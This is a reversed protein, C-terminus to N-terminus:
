PKCWPQNATGGVDSRIVRWHKWPLATSVSDLTLEGNVTQGQACAAEVQAEIRARGDATTPGSLEVKQVSLETGMIRTLCIESCGASLDFFANHDWCDQARVPDGSSIAALYAEVVGKPDRNFSGTCLDYFSNRVAFVGCVVLLLVIGLLIYMRRQRAARELFERDAM